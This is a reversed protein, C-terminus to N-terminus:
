KSTPPQQEMQKLKKEMLMEQQERTLKPALNLAAGPLVVGSPDLVSLFCSCIRRWQKSKRGPVFRGGM